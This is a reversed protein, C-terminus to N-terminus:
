SAICLRSCAAPTFISRIQTIPPPECFGYHYTLEALDPRQEGTDPEPRRDASPAYEVRWDESPTQFTSTQRSLASIPGFPGYSSCEITRCRVSRRPTPKQQKDLSSIELEIRAIAAILGGDVVPPESSPKAPFPAFILRM